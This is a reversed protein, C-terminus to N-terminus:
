LSVTTRYICDVDVLIHLDDEPAWGDLGQIHLRGWMNAVITIPSDRYFYAGRAAVRDGLHPAPTVVESGKPVLVPEWSSLPCIPLRTTLFEWELRARTVAEFVDPGFRSAVTWRFGRVEIVTAQEPEITVGPLDASEGSFLTYHCQRQQM